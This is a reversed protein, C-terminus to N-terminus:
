KKNFFSLDIKMFKLDLSFHAVEKRHVIDTTEKFVEEDLISKTLPVFTIPKIIKKQQKM